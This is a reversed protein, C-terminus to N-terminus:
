WMSAICTVKHVAQEVVKSMHATFRNAYRRRSKGALGAGELGVHFDCSRVPARGAVRALPM